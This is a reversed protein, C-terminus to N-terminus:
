KSLISNCDIQSNDTDQQKEPSPPFLTCVLYHKWGHQQQTVCNDSLLLM